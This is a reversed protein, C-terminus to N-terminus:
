FTNRISRTEKWFIAYCSSWSSYTTSSTRGVLHQGLNWPLVVALCFGKPKLPKKKWFGNLPKPNRNFQNCICRCTLSNSSQRVTKTTDDSNCMWDGSLSDRYWGTRIWYICTDRSQGLLDGRGSPWGASGSIVMRCARSCLALQESHSCLFLVFAAYCSNSSHWFPHSKIGCESGASATLASLSLPLNNWYVRVM